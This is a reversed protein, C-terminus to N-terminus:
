DSGAEQLLLLLMLMQKLVHRRVGKPHKITGKWEYCSMHM